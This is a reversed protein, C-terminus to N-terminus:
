PPDQPCRWTLRSWSWRAAPRRPRAARERLGVDGDRRGSLQTGVVALDAGACAALLAAVPDRVVRLDVPAVLRLPGSPSVTRGASM